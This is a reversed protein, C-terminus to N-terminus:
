MLITATQGGETAFIFQINNVLGLSQGMGTVKITAKTKQDAYVCSYVGSDEPVAEFIFLEATAQRCRMQFKEGAEIPEGSKRWEVPVGAKSLECRLTLNNGEEIM